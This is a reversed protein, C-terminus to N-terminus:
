QEDGAGTTTSTECAASPARVAGKRAMSRYILEGLGFSDGTAVNDAMAEDSLEQFMSEAQGGHGLEGMKVTSRMSKMFDGLFFAAFMKSAQRLKQDESASKDLTANKLGALSTSLNANM